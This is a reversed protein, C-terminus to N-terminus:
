IKFLYLDNIKKKILITVTQWVMECIILSYLLNSESLYVNINKFVSQLLDILHFLKKESFRRSLFLSILLFHFVNIKLMDLFFRRMNYKQGLYWHVNFINFINLRFNLKLDIRITYLTNLLLSRRNKYYLSIQYWIIITIIYYSYFEFDKV